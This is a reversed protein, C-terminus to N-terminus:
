HSWLSFLWFSCFVELSHLPYDPCVETIQGSVVTDNGWKTIHVISATEWAFILLFRSHCVDASRGISYHLPQLESLRLPLVFSESLFLAPDVGM